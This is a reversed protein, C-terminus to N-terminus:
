ERNYKKLLKYAKKLRTEQYEIQKNIAKIRDQENRLPIIEKLSLGIDKLEKITKYDQLQQITYYRYGSYYDVRVPKLLGIEDYYRLTYEKCGCMRSFEKITLEKM